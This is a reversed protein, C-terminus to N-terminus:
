HFDLGRCRDYHFKACIDGGTWPLNQHLNSGRGGPGPPGLISIASPCMKSFQKFVFSTWGPVEAQILINIGFLNGVLNKFKQRPASIPNFFQWFKILSLQNNDEKKLLEYLKLAPYRINQMSVAQVM